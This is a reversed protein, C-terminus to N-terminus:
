MRKLPIAGFYIFFSSDTQNKSGHVIYEMCPYSGFLCYIGYMILFDCYVTVM